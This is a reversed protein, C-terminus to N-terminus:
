IPLAQPQCFYPRCEWRRLPTVPAALGGFLRIFCVFSEGAGPLRTRRSMGAFSVASAPV